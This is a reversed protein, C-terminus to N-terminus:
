SAFSSRPPVQSRLRDTQGTGTIQHDADLALNLSVRTIDEPIRATGTINRSVIVGVAKGWIWGPRIVVGRRRLDELVHFTNGSFVAAISVECIAVLDCTSDPVVIRSFPVECNQLQIFTNLKFVAAIDENISTPNQLPSWILLTCM